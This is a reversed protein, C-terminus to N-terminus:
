MYNLHKSLVNLGSYKEEAHSGPSENQEPEQKLVTDSAAGSLYCSGLICVCLFVFM